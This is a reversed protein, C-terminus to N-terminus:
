MRAAARDPKISITLQEHAIQIDSIRVHKKFIGPVTFRPEFAAGKLIAESWLTYDGLWDEDVEPPTLNRQALADMVLDLVPQPLPLSGGTMKEVTVYLQGDDAITAGLHISMVTSISGQHVTAAIVIRDPQFLIVPQDVGSPLLDPFCATRYELEGNIQHQDFTFSFPEGRQAANNFRALTNTEFLMALTEAQRPPIQLETYWAPTYRYCLWLTIVTSLAATLLTGIALRWKSRGSREM